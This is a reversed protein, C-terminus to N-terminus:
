VSFGLERAMQKVVELKVTSADAMSHYRNALRKIATDFDHHRSIVYSM